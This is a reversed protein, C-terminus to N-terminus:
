VTIEEKEALPEGDADKWVFTKIIDGKEAMCPVSISVESVDNGFIIEESTGCAKLVGDSSYVASYVICPIESGTNNRVESSVTCGGDTETFSMSETSCDGMSPAAERGYHITANLLAENNSGISVREWEEKSGGYYVDTLSTCEEFASDEIETVGAPITINKLGTCYGFTSEYIHSVGAPLVLESLSSCELFAYEGIYIVSDPIKVATMKDCLAYGQGSHFACSNIYKTGDEIAISQSESMIDKYGYLTDNIYILGSSQNLYWGTRDLSRGGFFKLSDPFNITSINKGYSSYSYVLHALQYSMSVTGERIDLTTNEETFGKYEYFVNNIYVPGNPINTYWETGNFAGAGIEIVSEPIEINSLNDCGWFAEEDINTLGNPMIISELKDCGYFASDGISKVGEPIIVGTLEVCNYFAYSEIRKVKNPINYVGSKAQPCLILKEYNKTFLVGNESSYNENNESVTINELSSCYGFAFNGVKIVGRPIIINRLSTNSRFAYQGIATVSDPISIKNLDTCYSFAYEAIDTVGDHIDVSVLGTCNYFAHEGICTVSGPISVSELSTCNGFAYSGLSTVSDPINVTLLGTCLSFANDGISKVRESININKMNRCEYFAYAGIKTVDDDLVAYDINEKLGYWPARVGIYDDMEGTGSITLVGDELTWTLNDGCTGSEAARAPLVALSMLMTLVTMLSIIKKKM